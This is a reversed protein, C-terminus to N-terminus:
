RGIFKKRIFYDASAKGAGNFLLPIFMIFFIVPLKFNGFGKNTIAYGKLLDGFSNVQDPWHVSIIAVITLIMLSFAFFRTAVGFILCIAGIVSFWTAIFWSIDPPVINFPFPFKDQIDAFWNYGNVKELGTEWFEWALLLRLGLLPLWEGVKDLHGTVTVWTRIKFDMTKNFLQMFTSM